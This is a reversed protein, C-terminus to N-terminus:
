DFKLYEDKFNIQCLNTESIMWFYNKRTKDQKFNFTDDDGLGEGLLSNIDEEPSLIKTHSAALIYKTNENLLNKMNILSSYSFICSVGLARSQFPIASMVGYTERFFVTYVSVDKKRPIFKGEIPQGLLISISPKILSVLIKHHIINSSNIFYISKDRKFLDDIFIANVNDTFLDSKIITDLADEIDKIFEKHVKEKNDSPLNKLYKDIINKINKDTNILASYHELQLYKKITQLSLISKEHDRKFVLAMMLSSIFDILQSKENDTKNEIFSMIMETISSSSMSLHNFIKKENIIKFNDERGYERAAQQLVELTEIDNNGNIFFVENGKAISQIALFLDYKKYVYEGIISVSKRMRSKDQWKYHSLNIDYGLLYDERPEIKSTTIYTTDELNYSNKIFQNFSHWSHYGYDKAIKEQCQMLSINTNNKRLQKAERKFQIVKPHHSVFFEVGINQITKLISM